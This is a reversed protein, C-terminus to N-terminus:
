LGHRQNERERYPVPIYEVSPRRQVPQPYLDMLRYIIEPMADSVPIGLVRAEGLSIPYDHTWRGETLIEALDRAKSDEMRGQLLCFVSEQVQRMAKVAVDALILTKDDLENRDKAHIAALISVAPYEGLQPDVPGLVANPDMVIESAALAILTGGSMAYHPIMVTVKAPHRRLAHAIQEAALLLGGPTHLVLDIPLDPPTLRIARLVQESDEVTVYRVFPIGLISLAEQRHILTIVRSNREKELQQILRYRELQIRRQRYIPVLASLIFFLWILAFFYDM